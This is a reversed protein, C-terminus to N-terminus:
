KERNFYDILRCDVWYNVRHESLGPFDKKLGARLEPVIKDMRANMESYFSTQREELETKTM